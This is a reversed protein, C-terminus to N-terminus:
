FKTINHKELNRQLSLIKHAFGCTGQYATRANAEAGTSHPRVIACYSPWARKRLQASTRKKV